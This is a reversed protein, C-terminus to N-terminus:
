SSSVFSAHGISTPGGYNNMLHNKVQGQSSAKTESDTTDSDETAEELSGFQKGEKGAASSVSLIPIFGKIEIQKKGSLRQNRPETDLPITIEKLIRSQRNGNQEKDKAMKEAKGIDGSLVDLDLM